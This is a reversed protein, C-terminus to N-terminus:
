SSAFTLSSVPSNELGAVSSYKVESWESVEAKACIFILLQQLLLVERGLFVFRGKRM